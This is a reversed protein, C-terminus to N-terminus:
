IPLFEKRLLNNVVVEVVLVEVVMLTKLFPRWKIKHYIHNTVVHSSCCLGCRDFAAPAQINMGEM